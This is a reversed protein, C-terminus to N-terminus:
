TSAEIVTPSEEIASDISLLTIAVNHAPKYFLRNAIDEVDKLKGHPTPVEVLPCGVPRKSKTCSVEDKLTCHHSGDRINLCHFPCFGDESYTDSYCAKIKGNIKFTYETM